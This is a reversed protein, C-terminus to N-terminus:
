ACGNRFCRLWLWTMMTAQSSCGLGLLHLGHEENRGGPQRPRSEWGAERGGRGGAELGANNPRQGDPGEEWRGKRKPELVCVSRTLPWSARVRSLRKPVIPHGNTEAEGSLCDQAKGKVAFLDM